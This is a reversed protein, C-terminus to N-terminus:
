QLYKCMIIIECSNLTFLNNAEDCKWYSKSVSFTICSNEQIKAVHNKQKGHFLHFAIGKNERHMYKRNCSGKRAFTAFIMGEKGSLLMVVNEKKKCIICQM